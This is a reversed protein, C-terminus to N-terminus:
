CNPGAPICAEQFQSKSKACKDENMHFSVRYVIYAAVFGFPSGLLYAFIDTSWYETNGVFLLALAPGLVRHTNLAARTYAWAIMMASTLGFGASINQDPKGVILFMPIGWAFSAIFEWFIGEGFDVGDQLAPIGSLMTSVPVAILFVASFLVWALTSGLVYIIADTGSIKRGVWFALTLGPNGTGSIQFVTSAVVMLGLGHLLPVILFALRAANADAPLGIITNFGITGGYLFLCLVASGWFSAFFSMMPSVHIEKCVITWKEIAYKWGTPCGNKTLDRYKGNM